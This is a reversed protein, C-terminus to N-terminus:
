CTAASTTASRRRPTPREPAARDPDARVREDWLEATTIARGHSRTAGARPVQRRRADPVRRGGLRLPAAARLAPQRPEARRRARVAADDLPLASRLLTETDDTALPKLELVEGAGSPACRRWGCRPTSTPRSRRAARRRSSSCAAARRTATCARSCEFTNPSAYHLDDLWLLIPRDSRSASSCASSSSSACSRGTSSSASAAPGSRRWRRGAADAPAVRRDGRGLHAGRRRGQRGGLADHADARRDRPRRGRPRLARQHRRHHRRAAVAIRGYRARLPMMVGREHVEACLWEALRSKGVGAEGILAILDQASRAARCSTEVASWLERREEHAPSSCRRACARPHGPALSRARRGRRRARALEALSQSSRRSRRRRAAAPHADWARRADAAFEFRHWPRKELLRLVFKRRGAAARGGAAHPPPVPTRKHARLVDQANGEFVEHGSLVRYMICGLAYLDTPPGVLPAQRRIQEPAVWGVTGAGLARRGRARARRRAALRAPVAAALRARPRPRLRAPRAGTSALDLMVNSPKLDGHIVGRAHAHALAALVQDVMAWIVDVAAHTTHM